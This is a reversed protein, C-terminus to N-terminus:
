YFITFFNYKTKSGFYKLETEVNKKTLVLLFQYTSSLDDKLIKRICFFNTNCRKLNIETNFFNRQLFYLSEINLDIDCVLQKLSKLTFFRLHTKELIGSEVYDFAGNLLSIRIAGFAINPITLVIKTNYSLNSCLDSLYSAPDEMHEIVDAFVIFDYNENMIIDYFEHAFGQFFFRYNKRAINAAYSNPEIGDIILNSHEKNLVIALIGNGAGIDLVKSNDPIMKSIRNLPNAEDKLINCIVNENLDYTKDLRRFM